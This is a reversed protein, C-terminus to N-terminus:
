DQRRHFLGAAKDYDIGGVLGATCCTFDRCRDYLRPEIEQLRRDNPDGAKVYVYRKARRELGQDM